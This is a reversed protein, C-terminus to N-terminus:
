KEAGRNFISALLMGVGAGWLIIAACNTIHPLTSGYVSPFYAIVIGDTILATTTAIGIGTFLQDPRLKALKRVLFIFPVTGPIVLAYTVARMSGELAGMPAIVSLIIAACFWLAAGLGILLFTQGYTLGIRNIQVSSM